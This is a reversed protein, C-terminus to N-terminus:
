PVPPPAAVPIVFVTLACNELVATPNNNTNGGGPAGPVPDTRADVFVDYAGPDVDDFSWMVTGSDHLRPDSSVGWEFPTTAVFNGADDHVQFNLLLETDAELGSWESTYYVLLNSPGAVTVRTPLVPPVGFSDVVACIEGGPPGTTTYVDSPTVGHSTSTQGFGLGPFMVALVAVMAAVLAVATSTKFAHRTKVSIEKREFGSPEVQGRPRLM